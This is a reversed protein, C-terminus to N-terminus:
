VNPDVAREATQLLLDAADAEAAPRVDEVAPAAEAAPIAARRGRGTPAAGGPAAGAPAPPRAVAFQPPLGARWAAEDQEANVLFGRFGLLTPHATVPRVPQAAVRDILQRAEASTLRWTPNPRGSFVDLTVHM